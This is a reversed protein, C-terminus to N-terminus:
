PKVWPRKGRYYTQAIYLQREMPLARLKAGSESASKARQKSTKYFACGDCNATDLAGCAGDKDAFCPARKKNEM